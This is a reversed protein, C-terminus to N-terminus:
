LNGQTMDKKKENEKKKIENTGKKVFLERGADIIEHFKKIKDEDSRAPKNNTKM